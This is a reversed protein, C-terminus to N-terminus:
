LGDLVILPPGSYLPGGQSSGDLFVQHMINPLAGNSGIAVNIFKPGSGPIAFTVMNSASGAAAQGSRAQTNIATLVDRLTVQGPVNDGLLDLTSTVVYITPLWPQELEELIPRVWAPPRRYRLPRTRSFLWRSWHSLRRHM